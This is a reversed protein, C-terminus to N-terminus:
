GGFVTLEVDVSVHALDVCVFVVDSQDHAIDRRFFGHQHADMGLAQGAIDESRFAAVAALLQVRGHLLDGLCASPDQDVQALFSAADPEDVFDVSIRQLVLAVVCNFGIQNQSEWAIQAFVVHSVLHQLVQADLFDPKQRVIRKLYFSQFLVTHLDGFPKRDLQLDEIFRLAVHFCLFM